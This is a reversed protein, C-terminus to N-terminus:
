VGKGKERAEYFKHSYAEIEKQLHDFARFGARWRSRTKDDLPVVGGRRKHFGDAKKLVYVPYWEETEIVLEPRVM